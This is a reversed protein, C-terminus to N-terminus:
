RRCRSSRSRTRRRAPARARTGAPSATRAGCRRDGRRRCAPSGTRPASRTRRVRRRTTHWPPRGRGSPASGRGPWRRRSPERTAGCRCRAAVPRRTASPRRARPRRPRRSRRGARRDLALGDDLDAVAALEEPGERDRHGGVVRHVRRLFAQDAVEGRLGSQDKPVDTEDLLEARRLSPQDRRLVCSRRRSSRLMWSPACCCSTASDTLVRSARSRVARSGALAASISVCISVSIWVASSSRRSRARPM